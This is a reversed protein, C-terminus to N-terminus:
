PKNSTSGEFDLGLSVKTGGIAFMPIKKSYAFSLVLEGGEKAIDIDEATISKIDDIEARKRYAGRVQTVSSDKLSSDAAVAAIVKKLRGYEMWDPLVKMAGLALIAFIVGGIMLGNLSVGRQYKM